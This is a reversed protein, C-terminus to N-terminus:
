NKIQVYEHMLGEIRSFRNLLITAIIKLMKRKINMFQLTRRAETVHVIKYYSMEVM